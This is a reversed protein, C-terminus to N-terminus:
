YEEEKKADENAAENLEYLIDQLKDQLKEYLFDSAIQVTSHFAQNSKFRHIMMLNTLEYRTALNSQLPILLYEKSTKKLYNKVEM